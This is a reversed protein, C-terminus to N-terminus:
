VNWMDTVFNRHRVGFTLQSLDDAVADAGELDEEGVLVEEADVVALHVLGQRQRLLEADDGRRMALVGFEDASQLLPQECCPLVPGSHCSGLRGSDTSASPVLAIRSM